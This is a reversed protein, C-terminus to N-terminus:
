RYEWWPLGRQHDALGLRTRMTDRQESLWRLFGVVAEFDEDALPPPVMGKDPRGERITRRVEAEGLRPVADTLDPALFPGLPVAEFLRHCSSCSIRFVEYGHEELTGEGSHEAIVQAVADPDLPPDRRAQGVGTRDVAELWAELADIRHEDFGFAPMQGSGATLIADLRSRHLRSAANTLDPGLFGGFGYLQHCTQCNHEHWLARGEAALPDLPPTRDATDDTYVLATQVTFACVLFTM